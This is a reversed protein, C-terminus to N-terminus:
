QPPTTNTTLYSHINMNYGETSRSDYKRNSCISNRSTHSPPTSSLSEIICLLSMRPLLHFRSWRIFALKLNQLAMKCAEDCSEFCVFFRMRLHFTDFRVSIIKCNYSRLSISFFVKRGSETGIFKLCACIDFFLHFFVCALALALSHFGCVFLICILLSDFDCKSAEPKSFEKGFLVFFFVRSSRKRWTCPTTAQKAESVLQQEPLFTPPPSVSFFSRSLREARKKSHEHSDKIHM